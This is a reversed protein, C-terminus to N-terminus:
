KRKGEKLTIVEGAYRIGKGKYPEPKRKERIDAAFQGVMYKDIGSVTLNVNADVKVALGAPIPMEVPHSLGLVLTLKKTGEVAAKYGVGQLQLKKEFGTSVGVVVNNALTRLPSPRTLLPSLVPRWPLWGGFGKHSLSAGRRAAVVCRSLGHLMQARKTDNVKRLRLSGDEEQPAPFAPSLTLRLVAWLRSKRCACAVRGRSGRV